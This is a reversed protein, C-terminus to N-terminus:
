GYWSEEFYEIDDESFNTGYLINLREAVYTKVQRFTLDPKNEAIWSVTIGLYEQEFGGNEIEERSYEIDSNEEVYEIKEQNTRLLCMNKYESELSNYDYSKDTHSTDLKDKYWELDNNFIDLYFQDINDINDKLVGWAVFSSSSSNSVFSTRIKM